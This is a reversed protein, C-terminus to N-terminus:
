MSFREFDCSHRSSADMAVPIHIFLCQRRVRHQISKCQIHRHLGVTYGDISNVKEIWCTFSVHVVCCRRRVVIVTQLMFLTDVNWIM